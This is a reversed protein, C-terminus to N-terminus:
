LNNLELIDEVIDVYPANYYSPLCIMQKYIKKTNNEIGNDYIPEYYQRVEIFEPIKLNETNLFGITNFNSHIPIKQFQGPIYSKYYQYVREKWELVDDLHELTALGILAHVESMRCMKDRHEIAYKSLERNNTIILGGECATVLKTPALSFVHALGIENIEAGLCHSSDYIADERVSKGINGFTNLYLSAGGYAEIPLWTEIDVDVWAVRQKLSKLIYLDSWWNFMPVQIYPPNLYSICILLGMTCNSTAICYEVGYMDGVMFELERVYKDNTLMGSKLVEKIKAIL